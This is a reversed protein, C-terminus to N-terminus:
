RPLPARVVLVLAPRLLMVLVLGESGPRSKMKCNIEQIARLAAAPM